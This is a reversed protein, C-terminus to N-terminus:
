TWCGDFFLFYFSVIEFFLLLVDEIHLDNFLTQIDLFSYKKLLLNCLSPVGLCKLHFFHWLKVGRLFSFFYSIHVFYFTCMKLTHVIM